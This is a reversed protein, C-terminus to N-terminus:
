KLREDAKCSRITYSHALISVQHASRGCHMVADGRENLVSGSNNDKKKM